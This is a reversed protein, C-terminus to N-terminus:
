MRPSEWCRGEPQEHACAQRILEAVFFHQHAGVDHRGAEAAGLATANLDAVGDRNESLARDAQACGDAGPQHACGRDYSNFGDLSARADSSRETRIVNDVKALFIRDIRDHCQRVASTYVDRDFRQSCM